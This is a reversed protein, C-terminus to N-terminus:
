EIREFVYLNNYADLQYTHTSTIQPMNTGIGADKFVHIWDIKKTHRNLAIVCDLDMNPSEVSEAYATV